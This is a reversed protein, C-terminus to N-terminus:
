KSEIYRKVFERDYECLKTIDIELKEALTFYKKRPYETGRYVFNFYQTLPWGLKKSIESKTLGLRERLFELFNEKYERKKMSM